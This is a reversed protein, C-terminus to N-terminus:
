GSHLRGLRKVAERLTAESKTFTFRLHTTLAAHTASGTRTFASMPVAVVGCLHPLERCLEAADALGHAAVQAAADAVVFYTGSSPVVPMGADHLGGVLLDRRQALSAALETVYRSDPDGTTELNLAHAVAPQFPAGSVYTLFQKVATVARILPTPGSVWGIKWGTFSFTKGVSSITLTREAMGPLTAIPIHRAGDFTLHEYVEDTIVILDHAIAVDAITALEDAGLVAGTPNHPTNLLLIRTSPGVANRLATPDLRFGAPTPALPATVHGAGSLAIVAAYADYYPEFTLVEAGPEALALLSAAIAETAGTTVLVETDPNLDIGYHRHQHAAIARRLPAIGLGPPYQNVGDAIAQMAVRKVSDPGDEDPFGQGLNVADTALALASMEAFITPLSTGDAALLGAATAAARWRGPPTM